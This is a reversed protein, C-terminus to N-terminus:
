GASYPLEPMMVKMMLLSPSTYSFSRPSRVARIAERMVENLGSWVQHFTTSVSAIFYDGGYNKGQMVRCFLFTVATRAQANMFAAAFACVYEESSSVTFFLASPVTITCTPPQSPLIGFQRGIM